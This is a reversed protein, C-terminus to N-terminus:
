SAEVSAPQPAESSQLRWLEAYVGDRAMLADHTPVFVDDFVLTRSVTGRM